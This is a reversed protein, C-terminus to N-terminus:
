KKTKIIKCMYEIRQVDYKLVNGEYAKKLLIKNKQNINILVM